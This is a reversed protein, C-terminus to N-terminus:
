VKGCLRKQNMCVIERLAPIRSQDVQVRKIQNAAYGGIVAYPFVLYLGFPYLPFIRIDAMILFNDMAGAYAFIHFFLFIYFWKRSGSSFNKRSRIFLLTGFIVMVVFSFFYASYFTSPRPYAYNDRYETGHTFLNSFTNLAVYVITLAYGAKVFRGCDRKVNNAAVSYHLFLAPIFLCGLHLFWGWIRDPIFKLAFHQFAVTSSWFAISIWYIGFLRSLRSRKSLSYVAAFCASIFAALASIVFHNM